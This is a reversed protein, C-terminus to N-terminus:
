EYDIRSLRERLRTTDTRGWGVPPAVAAWADAYLERYHHGHGPTVEYTSPLDATVQWFTVFPFWFMDQSVDPPRPEDLWDPKEFLLSPSWRVVPDSGNQLYVVRSRSWVADPATLDRPRAAFRVIRGEDYVPMWEPSGPDRGEVFRQHLPDFSPPGSWVVGDTRRRLDAVDSFAAESGAVGLSTATVLLTPRRGPPLASWAAHVRDFLARGAIEAEEQGLLLAIGSPLYSYQMTVIATDGNYMYELADAGEPDVVGTGTATAVVLVERDFGGARRLERVALAARQRTTTASDLGAYVRVPVQAPLGSFATLDTPTPGSGVFDRGQRGLSEWSVLSAPSGSRQVALPRTTGQNTQDNVAASIDDAARVMARWVVENTLGVILLTVLLFALPSALAEPLRRGLWRAVVGVLRRLMRAVAVLAALVALSLVLIPLWTSSSPPPTGTLVHVQYQWRQGLWLTLAVLPVAAGVFAFWLHRVARASLRWPTLERAVWLLLVGVAYGFAASIGDVIGQWYWSRPLLSPTFSASGFLLAGTLGVLSYRPLRRPRRLRATWATRPRALRSRPM